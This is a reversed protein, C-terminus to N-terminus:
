FCLMNKKQMLKLHKQHNILCKEDNQNFCPRFFEHKVCQVHFFYKKKVQLENSESLIELPKVVETCNKYLLIRNEVDVIQLFDRCIPDVVPFLLFINKKINRM